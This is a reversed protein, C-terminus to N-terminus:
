APDSEPAVYESPATDPIAVGGNPVYLADLTSPPLTIGDYIRAAMQEFTEIPLPPEVKRKQFDVKIVKATV